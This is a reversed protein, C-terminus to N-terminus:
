FLAMQAESLAAPTDPADQGPDLSVDDDIWLEEIKGGRRWFLVAKDDEDFVKHGRYVAVPHGRLSVWDPSKSNFRLARWGSKRQREDCTVAESVSLPRTTPLDMLFRVHKACVMLEGKVSVILGTMDGRKRTGSEIAKRDHYALTTEGDYMSVPLLKYADTSPKTAIGWPGYTVGFVTYLYGGYEDTLVSIPKNGKQEAALHASYASAIKQWTEAPVLFEDM